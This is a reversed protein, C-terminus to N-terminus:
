DRVLKGGFGGEQVVKLRFRRGCVGMNLWVYSGTMSRVVMTLFERRAGRAKAGRANEVVATAM